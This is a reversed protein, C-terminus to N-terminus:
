FSSLRLSVGASFDAASDTLGAAAYVDFRLSDTVKWSIFPVIEFIDDIGAISKQEYDFSLGADVRDNVPFSAGGSAFFSNKLNLGSPDGRFRYGVTAFPTAGGELEKFIDLHAAFDTKGTGLGKNENATPLKVTGGIEFYPLADSGPDILYYASLVVDGIGSETTVGGGGPPGIIIPGDAGGVVSGPGKIRIYPVSGLFRFQQGTFEFTVPAFFIDTDESAGFDGSLYSAGASFSIGTGDSQAWVQAPLLSTLFLGGLAVLTTRGKGNGTGIGRM